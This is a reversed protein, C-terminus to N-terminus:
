AAIAVQKRADGRVRMALYAVQPGGPMGSTDWSGVSAATGARARRWVPLDGSSILGKMRRGLSQAQGRVNATDQADGLRAAVTRHPRRAEELGARLLTFRALRYAM